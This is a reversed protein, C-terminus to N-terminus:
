YKSSVKNWPLCFGHKMDNTPWCDLDAWSAQPVPVMGTKQASIWFFIYEALFCDAWSVMCGLNHMSGNWEQISGTTSYTLWLEWASPCGVGLCTPNRPAMSVVHWDNSWYTFLCFLLCEHLDELRGMQKAKTFNRSLQCLQM